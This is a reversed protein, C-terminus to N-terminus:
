SPDEGQAAADEALAQRLRGLQLNLTQRARAAVLWDRAAALAEGELRETLAVAGDLDNQALRDEALATIALPGTEGTGPEAQRVEILGFFIRCPGAADRIARGPYDERLQELTPVGARAVSEMAALDANGRWQRALAAREAEFSEGSMAVDRLATLALARAALRRSAQADGPQGSATQAAAAAAAASRADEAM